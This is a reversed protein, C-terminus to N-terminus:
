CVFFNEKSNRAYLHYGYCFISLEPFWDSHEKEDQVLEVMYYIATNIAGFSITPSKLKKPRINTPKRRINPIAGRFNFTFITAYNLAIPRNWIITRVVLVINILWSCPVSNM